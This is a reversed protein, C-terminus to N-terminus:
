RSLCMLIPRPVLWSQLTSTTLSRLEPSWPVGQFYFIHDDNSTRTFTPNSMTRTLLSIVLVWWQCCKPTPFAIGLICWMRRQWSVSKFDVSCCSHTIAHVTEVWNSITQSFERVKICKVQLYLLKWNSWMKMQHQLVDPRPRTLDEASEKGKPFKNCWHHGRAALLQIVAGLDDKFM